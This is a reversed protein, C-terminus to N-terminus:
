EARHEVITTTFTRGRIELYLERETVSISLTSRREMLEAIQDVFSRAFEYVPVARLRDIRSASLQALLKQVDRHTYVAARGALKLGRHLREADPMGVEIWATVRGTLDRILVAPDNGAAVGQTLVIGDGYELCYAIVRMFMYEVTESPQRAICVDLKEYVGRDNDALDVTLNYITATQAM